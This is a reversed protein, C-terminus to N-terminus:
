KNSPTGGSKGSKKLDQASKPDDPKPAAADRARVLAQIEKDLINKLETNPGVHRYMVMGDPAVVLMTPLFTVRMMNKLRNDPELLVTFDYKKGTIYSRVESAKQTTDGNVSVITLDKKYKKKLDDLNPFFHICDRCWLAWFDFILVPKDKLLDNLTISKADVTKSTFKPMKEEKALAPHSTLLLTLVCFSIPRISLNM